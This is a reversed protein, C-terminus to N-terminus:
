GLLRAEVAFEMPLERRSETCFGNVIMDVADEGSLGRQQYYFDPGRRDRTSAEAGGPRTNPRRTRSRTRGCKDGLLLSDSPLQASNGKSSKVAAIPTRPAGAPDGRRDHEEHEPRHPDDQAPTRRSNTRAVSFGASSSGIAPLESVEVHDRAPGVQTWSDPNPWPPEASTVFCIGGKGEKDGPYWNQVTSYQDPGKASAVLEVVAHLQDDRM